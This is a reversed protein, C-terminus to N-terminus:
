GTTARVAILDIEQIAAEADPMGVHPKVEHLRAAREAVSRGQKEKTVFLATALRELESVRRDRVTQAVFQIADHFRASTVKFHEQLATAAPTPFISPGYPESRTHLDLLGDARLSALEDRLDFSFPGHKYLIFSYGLPHMMLDQLLYVSKQIHTEGCWSGAAKLHDLLNTVVVARQVRNM